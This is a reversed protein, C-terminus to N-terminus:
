ATVPVDALFDHMSILEPLDTESELKKYIFWTNSHVTVSEFSRHGVVVKDIGQVVPAHSINNSVPDIGVMTKLLSQSPYKVSPWYGPPDAHVVGVMANKIPVELAIPRKAFQIALPELRSQSLPITWTGGKTLVTHYVARDLHLFADIFRHEHDGRVMHFWKEKLLSVIQLSEPGYDIINGTCILRDRNIDFNVNSLAKKLLTYQGFLDGVFYDTGKLNPALRVLSNNM